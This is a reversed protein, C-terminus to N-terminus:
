QFAGRHYSLESYGDGNVDGVAAVSYGFNDGTTFGTPLVDAINDMSAGGFYIYARGANSGNADNQHAGVIVDTYGDADVDGASAVSRGFRDDAGFGTLIVDAVIDMSAGGLYVYARGADTGGADNLNAGVVVDGYGDRNVDGASAVSLGFQDGAAAGTLILDVGSNMSAGGFYIYARGADTGAFDNLYAGVIM